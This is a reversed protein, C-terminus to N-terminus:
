SNNEDDRINQIFLELFLMKRKTKRNEEIYMNIAIIRGFNAKAELYHILKVLRKFSGKIVIRNTEVTFLNNEAIHSEPYNYISIKNKACYSSIEQLILDRSSSGSMSFSTFQSNIIELRNTATKIRQPASSLADVMGQKEKVEHKLSITPKIAVAYVFWIALVVIGIFAFFRQKYTLRNIM